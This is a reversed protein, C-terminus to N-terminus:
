LREPNTHVATFPAAETRQWCAARMGPRRMAVLLWLSASSRKRDEDKGQGLSSVGLSGLATPM